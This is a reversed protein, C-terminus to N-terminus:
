AMRFGSHSFQRAVFKALIKLPLLDIFFRYLNKCDWQNALFFSYDIFMKRLGVPQGQLKQHLLFCVLGGNHTM